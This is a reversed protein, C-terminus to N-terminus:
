KEELLYIKKIPGNKIVTMQKLGGPVINGSHLQKRWNTEYNDIILTGFLNNFIFDTDWKLENLEERMKDLEFEKLDITNVLTYPDPHTFFRAKVLNEHNAIALAYMYLTDGVYFEKSPRSISIFVNASYLSDNIKKKSDIKYSLTTYTTLDKSCIVRTIEQQAKCPVIAIVFLMLLLIRM